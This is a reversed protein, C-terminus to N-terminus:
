ARRLLASSSAAVAERREKEFSHAYIRATIAVNAHGLVYSVAALQAGNALMVSGASHRLSHFTVEPLGARKLARKLQRLTAGSELPTGDESTFVLDEGQWAPLSLRERRQRALHAQLIAILEPTLYLTRIKPKETKRGKPTERHLRRKGDEGKIRQLQERVTLAGAKLDVAPWRLGALESFRMGTAATLAYLAYLRHDRLSDLLTNLQGEDLVTKDAAAASPADTLKVVNEPVLKRKRAAELASSLRRRANAITSESLGRARLAAQWEDIHQASLRYLPRKGLALGGGAPKIPLVYHECVYTHTELTKAKVQPALINALWHRVWEELLQKGDGVNLRADRQQELEKLKQHAERKSKARRRHLKGDIVLQARWRGPAEEFVSGEGDGRNKPTRPKPTDSM